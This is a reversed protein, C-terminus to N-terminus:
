PADRHRDSNRDSLGGLVLAQGTDFEAVDHASHLVGYPIRRVPSNLSGSVRHEADHLRNTAPNALQLLGVLDRNADVQNDASQLARDTVDCHAYM